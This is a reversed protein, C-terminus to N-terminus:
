KRRRSRHLIGRAKEPGLRDLVALPDDTLVLVDLPDGDEAKTAAATFGTSASSNASKRASRALPPWGSPSMGKIANCATQRVLISGTTFDNLKPAALLLLAFQRFRWAASLDNGVPASM